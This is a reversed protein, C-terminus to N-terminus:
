ASGRGAEPPAAPGIVTRFTIVEDYYDSPLQVPNDSQQWGQILLYAPRGRAVAPGGRRQTTTWEPGRLHVKPTIQRGAIVRWYEGNSYEHTWDLVSAALWEAETPLRVKNYQCYAQADTWSLYSVPQKEPPIEIGFALGGHKRFSECDGNREATTVYGSQEVFRAYEGTLVPETSIAFPEVLVEQGTEFRVISQPLTIYM